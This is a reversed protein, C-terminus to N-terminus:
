APADYSATSSLMRLVTNDGGEWGVAARKSGIHSTVGAHIIVNEIDSYQLPDLGSLILFKQQGYLRMATTRLKSRLLENLPFTEPKIANLPLDLGSLSLM